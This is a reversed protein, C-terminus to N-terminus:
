LVPQRTLVCQSLETGDLDRHLRHLLQWITILIMLRRLRSCLLAAAEVQDCAHAVAVVPCVYAEARFTADQRRLLVQANRRGRIGHM